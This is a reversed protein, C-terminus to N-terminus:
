GVGVAHCQATPELQRPALALPEVRLGIALADEAVHVLAVCAEHVAEDALEPEELGVTGEAWRGRMVRGRRHCRPRCRRLMHRERRQLADAVLCQHGQCMDM